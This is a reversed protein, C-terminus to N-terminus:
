ATPFRSLFDHVELADGEVVFFEAGYDIGGDGVFGLILSHPNLDVAGAIL